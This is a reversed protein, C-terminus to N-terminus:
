RHCRVRHDVRRLQTRLKSFNAGRAKGDRKFLSVVADSADGRRDAVRAIDDNRSEGDRTRHRPHISGRNRLVRFERKFARAADCGFEPM